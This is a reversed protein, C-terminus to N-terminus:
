GSHINYGNCGEGYKTINTKLADICDIEAQLAEKETDFTKIVNFSFSDIGYERIDCYLPKNHESHNPQRAVRKHETWRKNARSSYGVYIKLNINNQIIYICHAKQM